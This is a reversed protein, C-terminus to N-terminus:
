GRLKSISLGVVLSGIPRGEDLVPVAVQVQQEGSSEDIEVKGQWTRGALPVDHKPKGAHCWNTTKSLFAVKTGDAGSVFAESTAESRGAKLAVAAPNKVLRRVFPDLVTLSSWKEQTMASEEAALGANHAKVAAVVAPAAALAKIQSLEADIKAQLAADIDASLLATPALAILAAVLLCCYAKM